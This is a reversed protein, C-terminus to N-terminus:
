LNLCILKETTCNFIGVDIPRLFFPMGNLFIFKQEIAKVNQCQYVAFFCLVLGCKTKLIEMGNKNSEIVKRTKKTNSRRMYKHIQKTKQTRM